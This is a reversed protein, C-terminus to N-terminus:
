ADEKQANRIIEYVERANEILELCAVASADMGPWSMGALAATMAHVPGFTITGSGDPKETLSVDSLTRLNLSKVKRSFVGSAIIIRENSVGYITRARRRADIWFRGVLLHVGMVVFPLGFFAMPWIGGMLALAEWFLVFGGWLLSFPVMFVDSTRM